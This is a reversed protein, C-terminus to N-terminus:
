RPDHSNRLLELNAATTGDIMATRESGCFSVRVSAPTLVVGQIFEVYQLLAALSALCYYKGQVDMLVTAMHPVCLRRVADTGREDNFYKRLVTTVHAEPFYDRLLTFMKSANPNCATHPMVVELPRLVQLKTIAKVYPQSDPFQCLVLEPCRLDTSALGVEGRAIGRGEALAVVVSRAEVEEEEDDDGADDTTSFSTAAPGCSLRPAAEQRSDIFPPSDVPRQTLRRTETHTPSQTLRGTSTTARSSSGPAHRQRQRRSGGPAARFRSSPLPVRPAWSSFGPMVVTPADGCGGGGGGGGRSGGRARGGGSTTTATDANGSRDAWGSEQMRSHRAAPTSSLLSSSASSTSATTSHLKARTKTRRPPSDLLLGFSYKPGKTSMRM